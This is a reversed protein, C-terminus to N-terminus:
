IKQGIYTSFNFYSNFFLSFAINLHWKIAVLGLFYTYVISKFKLILFKLDNLSSAIKEM